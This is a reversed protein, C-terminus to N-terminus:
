KAGRRQADNISRGIDMALERAREYCTRDTIRELAALAHALRERDESLTWDSQKCLFNTVNISDVNDGSRGAGLLLQILKQQRADKNLRAMKRMGALWYIIYITAIVAVAVWM